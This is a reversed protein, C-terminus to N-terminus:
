IIASIHEIMNKIEHMVNKIKLEIAVEGNVGESTNKYTKGIISIHM